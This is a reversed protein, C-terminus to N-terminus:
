GHRRSWFDNTLELVVNIPGYVIGADVKLEIRADLYAYVLYQGTGEVNDGKPLLAIDADDIDLVYASDM